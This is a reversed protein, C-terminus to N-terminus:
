VPCSLTVSLYDFEGHEFFAMRGAGEADEAVRLVRRERLNRGTEVGVPLPPRDHAVPAAHHEVFRRRVEMADDFVDAPHDCRQAQFVCFHFDHDRLVKRDYAAFFCVFLCVFLCYIFCFWM